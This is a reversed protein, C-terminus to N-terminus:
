SSSTEWDSNSRPPLSASNIKAFVAEIESACRRLEHILNSEVENVNFASQFMVINIAGAVQEGVRIPVAIACIGKTAEGISLAYGKKRYDNVIRQVIRPSRSDGADTGKAKRITELAEVLQERPMNAIMAKGLASRFIPRTKGVVSRFFTMSTQPHTSDMIILQGMSLVGFDSPWKVIKTLRSLAESTRVSRFDADQIGKSLRLWRESLFYKEDQERRILYGADVMTRLLRYITARDIGTVQALTSPGSWGIEGLADFLALARKISRVEKYPHTKGAM